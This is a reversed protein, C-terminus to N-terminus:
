RVNIKKLVQLILFFHISIMVSAYCARLFNKQLFYKECSRKYRAKISSFLNTVPIPKYDTYTRLFLHSLNISKIMRWRFQTAISLLFRACDEGLDGCMLFNNGPDIFTMKRLNEDWYLHDPVFDGLLEGRFQENNKSLKAHRSSLLKAALKIDKKQLQSVKSLARGKAISLALVDEQCWNIKIFELIEGSMLSSLIPDTSDLRSLVEYESKCDKVHSFVKIIEYDTQIVVSPFKQHIKLM